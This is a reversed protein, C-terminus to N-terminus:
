NSTKPTDLSGTKILRALHDVSFLLMLIASVPVAIYLWGTPVSKYTEFPITMRVKTVIFGYYIMVILITLTSCWSLWDVILKVKPSFKTSFFDMKLHDGHYFVVAIGIFIMWIFSLKQMVEIILWSVSFINRLIINLGSLSLVLILLVGCM